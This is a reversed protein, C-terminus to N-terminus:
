NSGLKKLMDRANSNSPEIELAKKYAKVASDHDGNKLYGDGLSDYLDAISPYAEINLQFVKIAAKADSSRLLKYGLEDLEVIGFDYSETEKQKLSAYLNLAVDIGDSNYSKYIADAIPLKPLNYPRGNLVGTLANGISLMNMFGMNTLFIVTNRSQPFRKIYTNFGGFRGAHSLTPENEYTGIGWGFGYNSDRGDNLKAPKFAENLTTQDILKGTYLAQDWKFLDGVTSYIGGEGFTLLTYDDLDGFRNYGVARKEPLPESGDHVFSNKMGLPLFIEKKLFTRFPRGSVKEVILALLIYGSNSYEFKENVPFQPRAQKILANLVEENTLGPHELGLKPYDVIGSTHNLLNRITIKQAYSPFEPFYKTLQDDYSLKHRKHLMMIAMATYQKSLSALYCPTDPRFVISKAANAVGFSHQYVIKGHDAVLVSGNFQGRDALKHMLADIQTSISQSHVVASLLCIFSIALVRKISGSM